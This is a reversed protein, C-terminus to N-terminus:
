ITWAYTCPSSLPVPDLTSAEGTTLAVYTAPVAAVLPLAFAKSANEAKERGLMSSSTGSVQMYDSM